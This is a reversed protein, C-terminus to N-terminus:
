KLNYISQLFKSRNEEFNQEMENAIQIKQNGLWPPATINLTGDELISGSNNLTPFASGYPINQQPPTGGPSQEGMRQSISKRLFRKYGDAQFYQSSDRRRHMEEELNYYSRLPGVDRLFEQMNGNPAVIMNHEQTIAASARAYAPQNSVPVMQALRDQQEYNQVTKGPITYTYGDYIKEIEEDSIEEGNYSRVLRSLNMNFNRRRRIAENRMDDIINKYKASVSQDMYNSMYPMGYYNSGYNANFYGQVRQNRKAIAEEQEFMMDTQLKDCVEQADKTLLIDTGSANFGPIHVVKDSYNQQAYQNQFYPNQSMFQFAPNACGGGYGNYGYNPIPNSMYPFQPMPQQQMIPQQNYGYMGPQYYQNQQQIQNFRDAPNYSYQASAQQVPQDLQTLDIVNVNSMDTTAESMLPPSGDVPEGTFYDFRNM